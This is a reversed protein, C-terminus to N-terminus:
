PPNPIAFITVALRSRRWALVALESESARGAGAGNFLISFFVVKFRRYGGAGGRGFWVCRQRGWRGLCGSQADRRDLRGAADPGIAFGGAAHKGVEGRAGSDAQEAFLWVPREVHRLIASGRRPAALVAIGWSRCPRPSRNGRALIDGGRHAALAEQVAQSAGEYLMRTLEVPTAAAVRSAVYEKHPNTPTM